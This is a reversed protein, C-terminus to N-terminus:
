KVALSGVIFAGVGVAAMTLWGPAGLGSEKDDSRRGRSAGAINVSGQLRSQLFCVHM